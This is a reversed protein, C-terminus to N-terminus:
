DESHTEPVREPGAVVQPKEVLLKRNNVQRFKFGIQFLQKRITSRSITQDFKYQVAARITDLTVRKGELYM